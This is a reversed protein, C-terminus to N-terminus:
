KMDAQNMDASVDRRKKSEEHLFHVRELHAKKEYVWAIPATHHQDQKVM